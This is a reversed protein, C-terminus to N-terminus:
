LVSMKITSSKVQNLYPTAYDYDKYLFLNDLYKRQELKLLIFSYKVIKTDFDKNYVSFINSIKLILNKIYFNTLQRILSPYFLSFTMIQAYMLYFGMTNCERVTLCM